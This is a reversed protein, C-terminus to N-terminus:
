ALGRRPKEHVYPLAGSILAKSPAARTGRATTRPPTPTKWLMEGADSSLAAIVLVPRAPATCCSAHMPAAVGTGSQVAQASSGDLMGEVQASPVVPLTNELLAGLTVRNAFSKLAGRLTRPLRCHFPGTRELRNLRVASTVYERLM